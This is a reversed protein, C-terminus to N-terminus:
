YLKQQHWFPLFHLIDILHSGLSGGRGVSRGYSKQPSPPLPSISNGFYGQYSSESKFVFLTSGWTASAACASNVGLQLADAQGDEWVHFYYRLWSLLEFTLLSLSLPPPTKNMTTCSDQLTTSLISFHEFLSLICSFSFHFVSLFCLYSCFNFYNIVITRVIVCM